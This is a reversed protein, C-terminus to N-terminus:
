DGFTLKNEAVIQWRKQRHIFIKKAFTTIFCTMMGGYITISDEYYIKGNDLYRLTIDHNWIKVGKDWEKTSIHFNADDIKEISLYHIGWFPIFGFICMKAGYTKGDEWQKPFPGGVSKFKIMGKAVFQLLAPTKVNNWASDIGMPIETHVTLKKAKVKSGNYDIVISEVQAVPKL